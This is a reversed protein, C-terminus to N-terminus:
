VKNRLSSEDPAAKWARTRGVFVWFTINSFQFTTEYKGPIDGTLNEPYNNITPNSL